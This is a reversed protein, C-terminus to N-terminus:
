VAAAEYLSRLFSDATGCWVKGSPRSFCCASRGVSPRSIFHVKAYGGGGGGVQAVCAAAAERLSFAAIWGDAAAVEGVCLQEPPPPM